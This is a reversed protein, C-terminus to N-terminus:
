SQNDQILNSIPEFGGFRNKITRALTRLRDLPIMALSGWSGGSGLEYNETTPEASGKSQGNMISVPSACNFLSHENDCSCKQKAQYERSFSASNVFNELCGNEEKYGIPCPNPPNCYSPIANDSKIVQVNEFTGDPGLLQKGEGAGGQVYQHGFLALPHDIYEGREENTEGNSEVSSARESTTRMNPSSNDAMVLPQSLMIRALQSLSSNSSPEYDVFSTEFNAPDNIPPSIYDSTWGHEESQDSSGRLFRRIEEQELYKNAQNIVPVKELYGSQILSREDFELPTEYDYGIPQDGSFDALSNPRYQSSVFTTEIQNISFITIVVVFNIIKKHSM